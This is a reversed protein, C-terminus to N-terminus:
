VNQGLAQDAAMGDVLLRVAAFTVLSRSPLRQPRDPPSERTMGALTIVWMPGPWPEGKMERRRPEGPIQEVSRPLAPARERIVSGM